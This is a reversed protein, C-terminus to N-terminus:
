GYNQTFEAYFNTGDYTMVLRDIADAGTSLSLTTPATGGPLLVNSPLTVNQPTTPHQEFYLEYRHGTLPNSFTLTETGTANVLDIKQIPGNNWDVDTTGPTADPTLTTPAPVTHVSSVLDHQTPPAATESVLFDQHPTQVDSFATVGQQTIIKAVLVATSYQDLDSPLNTPKGAAQAEALTNYEATGYVMKYTGPTNILAYLYSASFKNNSVAALTGSGDDYNANDVDTQGEVRTWGGVGDKYIYEFTDYSITGDATADTIDEEVTIVTDTGYTSSVVTYVGDNGTSGKVQIKTGATYNATQDGAVTFTDAVTDVATIAHTLSTNLSPMGYKNNLIYYDGETVSFQLSGEDAVLNGGAYEFRHVLYDKVSNKYSYDVNNARIDIVYLETGLRNVAYVLVSTRDGLVDNALDTSVVITPSGANYDVLIYNTALDTLALNTTGPVSYGNLEGHPSNTSRLVVSGAAVDVTGDGNETLAFGSACAGPSWVHNIVDQVTNVHDHDTSFNVGETSHSHLATEGGDTLDTANVDSINNVEAGPEIGDLKTGDASVDRGDVNGVNTIGYTGMDLTGTMARTGDALLYQTHDDDALGLLDGHDTATAGSFDTTFTSLTETFTTDNKQIIIKGIIRVHSEDFFAPVSSPAGAAEAASLTYDGRGYLVHVDGDTDLYVWHVGYFNNSLTALTGSGDDYQTNDIQSVSTVETFGGGGDRYYYNFTDAGSSDFAPTTFRTLGEWFTGATVSINLTGTEGLIAGGGAERAFPDLAQMRSIMQLAHDGVIARTAETTHLVTAERYVTGLLLNTQLDTRKTTTAIVRPVGANYEVYIYNMDNDVLAVNAGSEAAWDVWRLTDTQDNTARLLGTGAAVTITGDGDDTISGGTTVGASHFIDQMHQVTSFTSGAIRASEIDSATQADVYAKISQQSAVKAADNSVMDDEDLFYGYGALSTDANMTAGAADVNTADTVDAGDEIGALKTEETATFFKNTAGETVNDLNVDADNIMSADVNGDADLKVLKGADAAGASVDLAPSDVAGLSATVNTQDTVDAGAEVGDLKTGDAGVDRGDLLGSGDLEVLKGANTAGAGTDTVAAAIDATNAAVDAHDSGDGTRHTNNLATDSEVTDLNVAQTISIYGVKAQEADTFANTDANSEYLSKIKASDLDKSVVTWDAEVAPSDVEAIIVDGVELASTWFGGGDGAVTVTYMNGKTASGDPASTSADYSGAYEVSSAVKGDVYAKISQQSAVKTADDSVMNDEDLFYGNGTLSTDTDMTAGAAAVVTADPWAAWAASEYRYVQDDSLDYLMWGSKPVYYVWAGDVWEAIQGEKGAWDGVATAIIRYRDGDAPTVPPTDLTGLIPRLWANAVSNSLDLAQQPSMLGPSGPTAAPIQDTGNVHQAGHTNQHGM